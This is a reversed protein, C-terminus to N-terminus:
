IRSLRYEVDIGSKSTFQKLTASSGSLDEDIYSPWSAWVISSDSASIDIAESGDPSICAALALASVGLGAGQLLRRRSLQSQKAQLVLQQITQDQPLPRTM